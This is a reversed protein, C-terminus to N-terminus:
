QRGPTYRERPWRPTPAPLFDQRRKQGVYADRDIPFPRREHRGRGGYDGRHGPRGHGYGGPNWGSGGWGGFAPAGVGWPVIATPGDYAPAAQQEIAQEALASERRMRERELERAAQAEREARLREWQNAISYYDAAADAAPATEIEFQEAPVATGEAAPPADAYHRVGDDDVWTHVTVADVALSWCGAFAWAALRSATSTRSM